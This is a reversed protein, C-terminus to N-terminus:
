QQDIQEIRKKFRLARQLNCPHTSRAYYVLNMVFPIDFFKKPIIKFAFIQPISIASGYADKTEKWSSKKIEDIGELSNNHIQMHFEFQSELLEKKNPIGNDARLETYKSYLNSDIIYRAIAYETLACAIKFTNHIKFNSALIPFNKILFHTIPTTIITSAITGIISEYILIYRSDDNKIHTLEHHVAAIHDYLIEQEKQTLEKTNLLNELEKATPSDLIIVNKLSQSAYDGHADNIIIKINKINRTEAIQTIFNIIKESANSIVVTNSDKQINHYQQALASLAPIAKSLLACTSCLKNMSFGM